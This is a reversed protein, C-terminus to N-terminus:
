ETNQKNLTRSLFYDTNYSKIEKISNTPNIDITRDIDYLKEKKAYRKISNSQQTSQGKCKM